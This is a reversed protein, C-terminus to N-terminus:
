SYCRTSLCFVLTSVELRLVRSIIELFRLGVTREQIGGRTERISSYLFPFSIYPNVIWLNVDLQDCTRSYFGPKVAALLCAEVAIDFYDYVLWIGDRTPRNALYCDLFSNYKRSNSCILPNEETGWDFDSTTCGDLCTLDVPVKPTSFVITINNNNEGKLLFTTGVYENRKWTCDWLCEVSWNATARGGNFPDCFEDTNNGGNCHNFTDNHRFGCNKYDQLISLSTVKTRPQLLPLLVSHTYSFVNAVVAVLETV